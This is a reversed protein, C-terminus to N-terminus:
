EWNYIVRYDTLNDFADVVSEAESKYSFELVELLQDEDNYIFIKYM